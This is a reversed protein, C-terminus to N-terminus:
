GISKPAASWHLLCHLCIVSDELAFTLGGKMSEMGFKMTYHSHGDTCGPMVMGKGRHDIIKTVDDKIYAAVDKEDGVYIFKGDKIAIAEAVPNKEDATRITGYVVVDASINKKLMTILLIGITVIAVLSIVLIPKKM